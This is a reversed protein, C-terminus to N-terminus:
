EVDLSQRWAIQMGGQGYTDPLSGLHLHTARQILVCETVPSSVKVKIMM